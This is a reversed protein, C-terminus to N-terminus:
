GVTISVPFEFYGYPNLDYDFVLCRIGYQAKGRSQIRARCLWFDKKAAATELPNFSDPVVTPSNPYLELSTPIDLISKGATQYLQYFIVPNEFNSNESYVNLLVDTQRPHLPLHLSGDTAVFTNIPGGGTQVVCLLEAPAPIPKEPEPKPSIPYKQFLPATFVTINLQISPLATM